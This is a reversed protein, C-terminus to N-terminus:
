SYSWGLDFGSAKAWDRLLDQTEYSARLVAIRRGKPVAATADFM